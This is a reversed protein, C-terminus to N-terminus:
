RRMLLVVVVIILILVVVGGGIYMITGGTAFGQAVDPLDDDRARRAAPLPSRCPKTDHEDDTM